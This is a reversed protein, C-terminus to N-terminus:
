TANMVTDFIVKRVAVDFAAFFEEQLAHRALARQSLGNPVLGAGDAASTSTTTHAPLEWGTGAPAHHKLFEATVSGVSAQAPPLIPAASASISGDASNSRGPRQLPALLGAGGTGSSGKAAQLQHARLLSMPPKVAQAKSQQGQPVAATIATRQAAYHVVDQSVAAQQLRVLPGYQREAAERDAASVPEDNFSRLKPMAAVFYGRLMGPSCEASLPCNNVILQEIQKGFLQPIFEVQV